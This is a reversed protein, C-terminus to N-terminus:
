SMWFGDRNVLRTIKDNQEESMERKFRPFVEEEEFHAHEAVAARFERVKELWETRYSGDPRPLQGQFESMDHRFMLWLRELVVRDEADARRVFM